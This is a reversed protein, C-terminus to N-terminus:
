GLTSLNMSITGFPMSTWLMSQLDMWITPCLNFSL